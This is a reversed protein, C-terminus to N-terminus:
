KSLSDRIDGWVVEIAVFQDLYWEYRSPPPFCVGLPRVSSYEVWIDGMHTKWTKISQERYIIM